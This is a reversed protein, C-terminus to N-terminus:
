QAGFLNAENTTATAPVILQIESKVDFIIPDFELTITFTASKDTRGFSSLVVNSFAATKNTDSGVTYKTAKLTNTYSSVTDLGPASGSISLTHTDYDIGLKNLSAKEPTLQTIYGFLRAAVPKGEHLLTLTNLQNQVTLIKDLNDIGKLQKSKADIDTKLDSLSKKQVVDVMFLSFLLLAVSAASVVVAMFTMLHKTRRAKVYQLKIDPLLNFQIM